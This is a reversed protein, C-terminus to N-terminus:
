HGHKPDNKLESNEELLQWADARLGKFLDSDCIRLHEVITGRRIVHGCQILIFDQIRDM